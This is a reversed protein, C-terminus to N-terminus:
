VLNAINQIKKTQTTIIIAPANIYPTHRFCMSMLKSLSSYITKPM